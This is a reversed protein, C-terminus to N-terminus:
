ADATRSLFPNAVSRDHHIVLEDGNTPARHMVSKGLTVAVRSDVAVSM